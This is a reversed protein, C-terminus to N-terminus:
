FPIRVQTTKLLGGDGALHTIRRAQNDYVWLTDVSWRFETLTQFEGPGEGQRGVRAIEVGTSDYMRLQRDQPLPVVIEGSPGVLVRRVVSFDERNADLRLDETVSARPVAAADLTAAPAGRGTADPSDGTCALAVAVFWLAWRPPRMILPESVVLATSHWSRGM